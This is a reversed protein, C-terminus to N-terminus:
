ATQAGALSFRVLGRGVSAKGGLQMTRIGAGVRMFAQRMRNSDSGSGNRAPAVGIVGWLVTEAPLNEEYWLQGDQVTGTDDNIRIRARVETATDALFSFDDDSLIVFRPDFHVAAGDDGPFLHARLHRAWGAASASDECAIELDDLMIQGGIKLCSGPTNSAHGSQVTPIDPLSSFGAIELEGAYRRLVFPCTAWAMVGAMSRVPLLLLRADGVSLAGAYADKNEDIREPGFLPECEDKGRFQDRLVGKLSSGPFCPLGSAKERAIPLDIASAAQGTGAHLASIAHLHFLLAEMIFTDKIDVTAL